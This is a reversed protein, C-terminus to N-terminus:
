LCSQMEDAIRQLESTANDIAERRTKIADEMRQGMDKATDTLRYIDDAFDQADSIADEVNDYHRAKMKLIENAAKMIEDHVSCITKGNYSV